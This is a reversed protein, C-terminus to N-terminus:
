ELLFISFTIAVPGLRKEVKMNKIFINVLPELCIATLFAFIIPLFVSFHFYLFILIVLLSIIKLVNINSEKLKKYM